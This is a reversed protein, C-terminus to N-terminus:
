KPRSSVHTMGNEKERNGRGEDSLLL